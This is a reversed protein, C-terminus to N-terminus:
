DASNFPHSSVSSPDALYTQYEVYILLSVCVYM